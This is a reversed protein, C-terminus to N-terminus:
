DPLPTIRLRAQYLSPNTPAGGAPMPDLGLLEIRVFRLTGSTPGGSLSTNLELNAPQTRNADMLVLRIRGNGEWVCIVTTPCRSDEVVAEFRISIGPEVEYSQHYGIRVEPGQRAGPSGPLTCSALFVIVFARQFAPNATKM